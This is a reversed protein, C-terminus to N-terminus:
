EIKSSEKEAPEKKVPENEIPTLSIDDIGMLWRKKELRASLVHLVFIPEDCPAEIEMTIKTWDKGILRATPREARALPHTMYATSMIYPDKEVDEFHRAYWTALFREGKKAPIPIEITDDFHLTQANDFLVLM